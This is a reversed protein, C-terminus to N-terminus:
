TTGKTDINIVVIRKHPSAFHAASMALGLREKWYYHTGKQHCLLLIVVIIQPPCSDTRSCLVYIMAAVCESSEAAILLWDLIRCLAGTM